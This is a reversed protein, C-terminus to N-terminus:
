TLQNWHDIMEKTPTMVGNCADDRGLLGYKYSGIKHYPMIQIGQCSRMEGGIKKLVSFHSERDNLTPIIPARIIFPINRENIINLNELVPALPVGTYQRHLAEDTEKIDFLILDCHETVSLLDEVKAFGSTEIATHIGNAQCMQLLASTFEPQFLPEGGSVTVGGGSTQYFLKDRNVAAFAEDVSIESGYLELAKTPCAAACAGCGICSKREFLHKQETSHCGRPCVAVCRGCGVCKSADYLIERGIQQSEPNHCWVCRLPCGKLFVTTRIGPGDDTCFRQINFIKGMTM